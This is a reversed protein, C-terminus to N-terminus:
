SPATRLRWWNRFSLVGVWAFGSTYLILLPTLISLGGLHGVLAWLAAACEGLGHHSFAYYSGSGTGRKPTRVFPSSIGILAEMVARTNSLALGSGLAAVVPLDGLIRRWPACRLVRQSHAYVTFSNFLSLAITFGGLALLYGPREPCLWIALPLTILSITVLPNVLYHTLHLTAALKQRWPWPSRWIRSLLKQAVQISGKAWRFQQSRWADVTEPLEGPVALNMRYTTCYGALQARYSLDIDETLTDHHWGGADEIARRRWLGCTGNFHMPLRGWARAAQEIFFHGDLGIAQARTLANQRPNLHDWRGQVVALRPDVLMPRIAHTLFDSPPIFDADFIAIFEADDRNLGAQLAGAKFGERVTRHLHHIPLGGRRLRHVLEAIIRSSDDTSDDLVQICLRDRPWDLRAAARIAREVVDRENFVPLQVLIRPLDGPLPTASEVAEARRANGWNRRFISILWISHAAYVILGIMALALTWIALTGLTDVGHWM